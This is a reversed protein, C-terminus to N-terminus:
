TLDLLMVLLLQSLSARIGRVALPCTHAVGMPKEGIAYFSCHSAGGFKAYSNMLRKRM